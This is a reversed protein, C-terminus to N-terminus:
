LGAPTACISSTYRVNACDQRSLMPGCNKAFMPVADAACSM